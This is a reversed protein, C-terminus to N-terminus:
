GLPEFGHAPADVGGITGSRCRSAVTEDIYTQNTLDDNFCMAHKSYTRSSPL